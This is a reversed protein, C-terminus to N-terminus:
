AKMRLKQQLIVAGYFFLGIPFLWYRYAQDINLLTGLGGPHFLIFAAILFFPIEYLRNKTLCWGQAFNEFASMGVLAMGFILLGQPWSNINHLILDPNFVFMFAIVSTRIDYLFGQIGTAIPESKAIASAAYAALGVPPTDDALIGFYFCFLHAAMIPIVFNYLGGVEVIIPATLSAMVIYTATTPLGMGLLLSALATIILLIYINGMALTEVIQAIMGGIGM